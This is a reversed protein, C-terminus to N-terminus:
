LEGVRLSLLVDDWALGNGISLDSGVLGSADTESESRGLNTKQEEWPAAGDVGFTVKGAGGALRPKERTCYITVM